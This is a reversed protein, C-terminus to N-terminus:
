GRQEGLQERLAAVAEHLHATGDMPYGPERARVSWRVTAEHMTVTVSFRRFGFSRALEVLAREIVTLRYREQDAPDLEGAGDSDVWAGADPEHASHTAAPGQRIAESDGSDYPDSDRQTIAPQENASSRLLPLFAATMKAFALYSFIGDPERNWYDGYQSLWARVKGQGTSIRWTGDVSGIQYDVIYRKIEAIPNDVTAFYELERKSWYRQVLDMRQNYTLGRDHDTQGASDRKNEEFDESEGAAAARKAACVPGCGQAAHEPDTLPRGCVICKGLPAGQQRSGAADSAVASQGADHGITLLDPQMDYASLIADKPNEFSDTARHGDDNYCWWRIWTSRGNIGHVSRLEWGAAVLDDPMDPSQDAPSSAAAESKAREADAAEAAERARRLRAEREQRSQLDKRTDLIAMEVDRASTTMNQRRVADCIYEVLWDMDAAWLDCTPAVQQEILLCLAGYTIPRPPNAGINATNMTATTGHKTTYVRETSESQPFEATLEGRVIRVTKEDVHCRRAIERNSWQSWEEDRLLTEVARRKDANSRRLGHQANAGAAHLIADRRTGSRISAPIAMELKQAAAYRKAAAVRHFGDALWYDAGDHYVVVAPFPWSNPGTIAEAYEAVTLGDLGARMQTGGDVRIEALAIIRDTEAPEEFNQDGDQTVTARQLLFSM